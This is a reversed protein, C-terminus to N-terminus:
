LGFLGTYLDVLADGVFVAILAGLLMFPGSPIKSTRAARGVAKLAAGHV